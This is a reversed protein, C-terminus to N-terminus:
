ATQAAQDTNHLIKDIWEVMSELYEISPELNPYIYFAHPLGPYLKLTVEVGDSRLAEAYAIGEDRLPDMGAVQILAQPLGKLSKALLPSVRPDNGNGSPIYNDWFWRMRETNLIPADSMQLFSSHEDKLPCHDPHCTVPINLLQGIIQASGDDRVIQAVVAAVNAGASGGGIIVVDSFAARVWKFADLSDNLAYPFPFEPAKRYDVSVVVANNRVTILRNQNEETEPSGVTWGGGHINFFLPHGKELQIPQYIRLAVMAGDRVEIERETINLDNGPTPANASLPAPRYPVKRFEDIPLSYLKSLKEEVVRHSEAVKTWEPHPTSLHAVRGATHM